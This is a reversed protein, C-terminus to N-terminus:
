KRTHLAQAIGEIREVFGSLGWQASRARAQATLRQRLARDAALRDYARRLAAADGAPVLLGTEEHVVYDRTGYCDTAIVPIGHRMCFTFVLQGCGSAGSKLAVVVVGGTSRSTASIEAMM